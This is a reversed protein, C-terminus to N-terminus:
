NRNIKSYIGNNNCIKDKGKLFNYFKVICKKQYWKKDKKIEWSIIYMKPKYFGLNAEYVEYGNNRLMEVITDSPRIFGLNLDKKGSEVRMKVKNIIKNYEEIDSKAKNIKYKKYAEIGNM